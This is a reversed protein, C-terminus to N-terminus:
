GFSERLSGCGAGAMRKPVGWHGLYCVLKWGCQRGGDRRRTCSHARRPAWAHVLANARTARAAGRAACVDDHTCIAHERMPQLCVAGVRGADAGRRRACPSLARTRQTCRRANRQMCERREERVGRTSVGEKRRKKSARLVARRAALVRGAQRCTPVRATGCACARCTCARTVTQCRGVSSCVQARRHAGDSARPRQEQTHRRRRACLDSPPPSCWFV